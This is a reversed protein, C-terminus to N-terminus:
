RRADVAPRIAVDAEPRRIRLTPMELGYDAVPTKAFLARRVELRPDRRLDLLATRILPDAQVADTGCRIAAAM